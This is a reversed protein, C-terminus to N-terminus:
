GMISMNQKDSTCLIQQMPTFRKVPCWTNARAHPTGTPRCEPPQSAVVDTAVIFMRIKRKEGNDVKRM